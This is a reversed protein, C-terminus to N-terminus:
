GAPCVCAGMSVFLHISSRRVYVCAIYMDKLQGYWGCKAFPNAYLFITETLNWWCWYYYCYFSFIFKIHLAHLIFLSFSSRGYVCKHWWKCRGSRMQTYLHHTHRQVYMSYHHLSHHHCKYPLSAFITLSRSLIVCLSSPSNLSSKCSYKRVTASFPKRLCHVFSYFWFKKCLNNHNQITHSSALFIPM